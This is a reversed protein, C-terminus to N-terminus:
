RARGHRGRMFASLGCLRRASSSARPARSLRMNVATDQSSASAIVTCVNDVLWLDRNKGKGGKECTCFAHPQGVACQRAAGQRHVLRQAIEGRNTQRDGVHYHAITFQRENGRVDFSFGNDVISLSANAKDSTTAACSAGATHSACRQLRQGALERTASVNWMTHPWAPRASRSSSPSAAALRRANSRAQTSPGTLPRCEFSVARRLRSNAGRTRGFYAARFPADRPREGALARGVTRM